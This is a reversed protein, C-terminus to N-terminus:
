LFLCGFGRHFASHVLRLFDNLIFKFWPRASGNRLLMTDPSLFLMWFFLKDETPHIDVLSNFRLNFAAEVPSVKGTEINM